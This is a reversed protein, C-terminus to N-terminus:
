LFDKIIACFFIVNWPGNSLFPFVFCFVTAIFNQSQRPAAQTLTVKAQPQPQPCVLQPAVSASLSVLIDTWETSVITKTRALWSECNPKLTVLFTNLHNFLFLFFFYLKFNKIGTWMLCVTARTDACDVQHSHAEAGRRMVNGDSFVCVCWWSSLVAWDLGCLWRRDWGSFM